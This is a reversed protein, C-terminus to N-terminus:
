QSLFPAWTRPRQRPGFQDPFGKVPVGQDVAPAVRHSEGALVERNCGLKHREGAHIKYFDAVARIGKRGLGLPDVTRGSRRRSRLARLGRWVEPSNSLVNKNKRYILNTTQCTSALIGM